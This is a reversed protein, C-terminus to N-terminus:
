KSRYKEEIACLRGHFDKSEKHISNTLNDIKTALYIFFGVMVSFLATLAGIITWDM